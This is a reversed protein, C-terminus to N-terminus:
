GLAPVKLRRTGLVWTDFDGRILEAPDSGGLPHIDAFLNLLAGNGSGVLPNAWM